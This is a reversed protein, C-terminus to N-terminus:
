AAIGIGERICFCITSSSRWRCREPDPSLVIQRMCFWVSIPSTAVCVVRVMVQQEGPRWRASTQHIANHIDHEDADTFAGM